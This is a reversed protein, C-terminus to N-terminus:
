KPSGTRETFIKLYINKSLAKPKNEQFNFNKYFKRLKSFTCNLGDGHM